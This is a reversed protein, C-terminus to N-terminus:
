TGKHKVRTLLCRLLHTHVNRGVMSPPFNEPLSFSRIEIRFSIESNSGYRKSMSYLVNFLFLFSSFYRLLTFVLIKTEHCSKVFVGFSCVRFDINLFIDLNESLTLITVVAFLILSM